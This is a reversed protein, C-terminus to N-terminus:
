RTPLLKTPTDFYSTTSKRKDPLPPLKFLDVSLDKEFCSSHAMIQTFKELNKSYETQPVNFNGLKIIFCLFKSVKRFLRNIIQIIKITQM